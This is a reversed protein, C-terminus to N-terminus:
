SMWHKRKQCSIIESILGKTCLIAYQMCIYVCYGVIYNYWVCPYLMCTFRLRTDSNTKLLGRKYLWGEKTIKVADDMGSMRLVDDRPNVFASM